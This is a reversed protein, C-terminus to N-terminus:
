EQIKWTRKKPAQGKSVRSSLYVCLSEQYLVDLTTAGTERVLRVIVLHTKWRGLSLKITAFVSELELPRRSIPTESSDHGFNKQPKRAGRKPMAFDPSDPIKVLFAM